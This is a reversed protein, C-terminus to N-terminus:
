EASDQDQSQSKEVLRKARNAASRRGDLRARFAILVPIMDAVLEDTLKGDDVVLLRAGRAHLAAEVHEAGFRVLRDRHEVM